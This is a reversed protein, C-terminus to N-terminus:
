SEGYQDKDSFRCKYDEMLEVSFLAVGGEDMEFLVQWATGAFAEFGTAPRPSRLMNQAAEAVNETVDDDAARCRPSSSRRIRPLPQLLASAGLLLSLLFTTRTM